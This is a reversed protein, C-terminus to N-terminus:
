AAGAKRHRKGHCKKCLFVVELPKTYDEHHAEVGGKKNCDQCVAPPIIKKLKIANSAQYRAVYKGKHLVHNNRHVREAVEKKHTKYYKRTARLNNKRGIDSRSYQLSKIRLVKRNKKQYRKMMALRKPRNKLHSKADSVGKCPKCETSLGDAKSRNKGFCSTDLHEKCAYCYKIL